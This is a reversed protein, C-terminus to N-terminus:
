TVPKGDADVVKVAVGTARLGEEIKARDGVVVWTLSAPKIVVKAARAIDATTLASIRQAYTDYYSDPLGYVAIDAITGAVAAGTEWRGPLSLTLNNKALALDAEAVPREKLIESLERRMELFSEKTKDTQVPAYATFLGPGKSERIFSRAGYSWHKDERLNM